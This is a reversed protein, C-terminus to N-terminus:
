GGICLWPEDGDCAGQKPSRGKRVAKAEHLNVLCAGVQLAQTVGVHVVIGEVDPVLAGKGGDGAEAQAACRGAWDLPVLDISGPALSHQQEVSKCLCPQVERARCVLCPMLAIPWPALMFMPRNSLDQGSM